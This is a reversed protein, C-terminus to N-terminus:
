LGRVPRWTRVFRRLSFLSGAAGLFWGIAVISAAGATDLFWLKGPFALWGGLAPLEHQLFLFAAWLAALSVTAGAVGLLMGELVFPAQILEESAGMLQMIEVEDQRALIALKATSGVIFFTALFLVGGVVWKAWGVALAILALREVWQQPYDVDAIEPEKELREALQKVASGDRRDVRLTIEVSAPLLDRPLGDLLASQNGLVSKFDRWAQEQDTYQVREVEPFASIRVLLKPVAHATVDKKLYATIQLQDGWGQLWGELNLQLLIFAGFAFLTMALTGSTLLHTWRLQWLSGGVRRVVFGLLALKM